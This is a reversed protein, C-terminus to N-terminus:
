VGLSIESNDFRHHDTVHGGDKRSPFFSEISMDGGRELEESPHFLGAPGPPNILTGDGVWFEHHVGLLYPISAHRETWIGVGQFPKLEEGRRHVSGRLLDEELVLVFNVFNNEELLSHSEKPVERRRYRIITRKDQHGLTGGKM